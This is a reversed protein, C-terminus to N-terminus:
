GKSSSVSKEAELFKRKLKNITDELLSLRERDIELYIQSMEEGDNGQIRVLAVVERDAVYDSSGTRIDVRWNIESLVPVAEHRDKKWFPGLEKRRKDLFEVLKRATKGPIKLNQFDNEIEELTLTPFASTVWVFFRLAGYAVDSPIGTKKEMRAPSLTSTLMMSLASDLFIDIKTEPIKSFCKADELFYTDPKMGQWLALSM